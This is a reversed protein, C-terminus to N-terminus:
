NENTIRTMKKTTKKEFNGYKSSQFFLLIKEINQLFKIGVWWAIAGAM